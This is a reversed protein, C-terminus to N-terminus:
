QSGFPNFQMREPSLRRVVPLPAKPLGMTASTRYKRPISECARSLVNLRCRRRGTTDMQKECVRKSYRRCAKRSGKRSSRRPTRKSTRRSGKRSAKRSVKRSSRRPTRRKVKRSMTRSKAM